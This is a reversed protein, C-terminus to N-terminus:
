DKSKQNKYVMRKKFLDGYHPSNTYWKMDDYYGPYKVIIFVKKGASVEGVPKGDSLFSVLRVGGEYDKNAIVDEGTVFTFARSLVIPGTIALVSLNGLKDDEYVEKEINGVTMSIAKLLIPNKPVTAIFANYIGTTKNDEPSVFEDSPRLVERLPELLVMGSDM